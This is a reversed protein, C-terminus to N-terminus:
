ETKQQAFDAQMEALYERLQAVEEDDDGGEGDAGQNSSEMATAAIENLVQGLDYDEEDHEKDNM